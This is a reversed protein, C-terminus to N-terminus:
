QLFTKVITHNNGYVKLQSGHEMYACSKSSCNPQKKDVNVNCDEAPLLSVGLTYEAKVQKLVGGQFM